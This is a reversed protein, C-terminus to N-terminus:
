TEHCLGLIHAHKLCSFYRYSVKIPIINLLIVCYASTDFHSKNGRKISAINLTINTLM